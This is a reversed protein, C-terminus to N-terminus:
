LEFYRDGSDCVITIVKGGAGIERAVKLAAVYNAGSSLGTFLGNERALERVGSLADEDTVTIVSDYVSSDLVGPVFGAGIGSISHKGAKGGSLVASNAPEVAAVLASPFLKKIEAGVGTVTGGTGVGMVFGDIKPDGTKEAQFIIERATISAHTEPNLPNSFQNTLFRLKPKESVFERARKIAGPIGEDPPTEFIKAGYAVAIAKKANSKEEPMFLAVEYGRAACLFSLAIGTDGSTAETVTTKGPVLLGRKEADSIIASCIREKSSGSGTLNELKVWISAHSQPTKLKLLPTM